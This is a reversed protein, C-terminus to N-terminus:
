AAVGTLNEWFGQKKVEVAKGKGATAAVDDAEAALPRMRALLRAARAGGHTMVQQSCEPCYCYPNDNKDPRVEMHDNGCTPCSVYGIAAKKGM